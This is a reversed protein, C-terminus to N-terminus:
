VDDQKVLRAVHQCARYSPDSGDTALLWTIKGKKGKINLDTIEEIEEEVGIEKDLPDYVRKESDM